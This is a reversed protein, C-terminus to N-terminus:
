PYIKYKSDDVVFDIEEEEDNKAQTNNEIKNKRDMEELEEIEKKGINKNLDENKADGENSGHAEMNEPFPSVCKDLKNYKMENKEGKLKHDDWEDLEKMEDLRVNEDIDEHKSIPSVSREIYRKGRVIERVREKTDRTPTYSDPASLLAPCPCRPEGPLGCEAICEPSKLPKRMYGQVEYDNDDSDDKVAWPADWVDLGHGNGAM